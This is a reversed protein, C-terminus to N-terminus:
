MHNGTILVSLCVSLCVTVFAYVVWKISCPYIGWTPCLRRQTVTVCCELGTTAKKANADWVPLPRCVRGMLPNDVRLFPKPRVLQLSGSLSPIICPIQPMAQRPILTQNATVGHTYRSIIIIIIVLYIINKLIITKRYGWLVHAHGWHLVNYYTECQLPPRNIELPGKCLAFRVESCHADTQSDRKKHM